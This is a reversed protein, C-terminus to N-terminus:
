NPPSRGALEHLAAMTRTLEHVLRPPLSAGRGDFEKLLSDYYWLSGQKGGKFKEWTAEGHERLDLVLCRMNHLKDCASVLLVSPSAGKIHAIYAEKRAQWPPKPIEDADTCGEVINAVNEGFRLRIDELRGQGGADEVADHLLAAIAEDETAGFELALATVALLHSIYPVQTGKRLQGAHVVCAYALAQEFRSTLPM